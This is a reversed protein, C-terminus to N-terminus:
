KDSFLLQKVAVQERRLALEKQAYWSITETDRQLVEQKNPLVTKM